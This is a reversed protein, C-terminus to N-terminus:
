QLCKIAWRKSAKVWRESSREIRKEKIRKEKECERERERRERQM